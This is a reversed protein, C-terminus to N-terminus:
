ESSHFIRFLGSRAQPVEFDLLYFTGESKLVRRVERLTNERNEGGLHHFMFSSFVVDFSGSEYRLDVAFGQNLRVSVGARKSKAESM